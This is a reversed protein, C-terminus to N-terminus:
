CFECWYDVRGILEINHPLAEATSLFCTVTVVVSGPLEAGEHGSVRNIFTNMSDTLQQLDTIQASPRGSMQMLMKDLQEANVNIWADDASSYCVVCTLSWM